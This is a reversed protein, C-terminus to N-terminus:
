IKFKTFRISSRSRLDKNITKYMKFTKAQFGLYMKDGM